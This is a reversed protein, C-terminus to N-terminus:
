PFYLMDLLRRLELTTHIIIPTKKNAKTAKGYKPLLKLYRMLELKDGSCLMPWYERIKPAIIKIPPIIILRDLTIITPIINNTIPSNRPSGTFMKDM